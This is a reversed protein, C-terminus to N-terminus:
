NQAYKSLIKNIIGTTSYESGEKFKILQIKNLDYKEFKPFSNETVAWMNPCIEKLLEMDKDRSYKQTSENRSDYDIFCKTVPKLSSMVKQRAYEPLIPRRPKILSVAWDPIILVILVDAYSSLYELTKIHDPHIIDFVGKIIMVTKGKDQWKKVYKKIQQVQKQNIM